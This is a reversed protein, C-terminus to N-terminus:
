ADTEAMLAHYYAAADSTDTHGPLLSWEEATYTWVSNRGRWSSHSNLEDIHVWVQAKKGDGSIRFITGRLPLQVGAAPLHEVYDGIKM